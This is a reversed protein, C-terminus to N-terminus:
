PFTLNIFELIFRSSLTLVFIQTKDKQSLALQEVNRAAIMIVTELNM